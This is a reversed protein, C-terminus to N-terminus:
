LRVLAINWMAATTVHATEFHGSMFRRLSQTTWHQVHGPTNGLDRLYAGRAMNGMRWWPENPVTILMASRAVRQLEILARTPNDLHEFVETAVVLDFADDDFPLEYVSAALFQARPVTAPGQSVASVELDCAVTLEPGLASDLIATTRGEGCGVDLLSAHPVGRGLEILRDHFSRMMRQVVPNTSGHKDYHNGPVNQVADGDVVDSRVVKLHRDRRTM